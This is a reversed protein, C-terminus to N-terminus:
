NHRNYLQDQAAQASQEISIFYAKVAEETRNVPITSRQHIAEMWRVRQIDKIRHEAEDTEEYTWGYTEAMRHAITDPAAGPNM